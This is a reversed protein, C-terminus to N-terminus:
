GEGIHIDRAALYMGLLFIAEEVSGDALFASITFLVFWCVAVMKNPRM